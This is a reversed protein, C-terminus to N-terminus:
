CSTGLTAVGAGLQARVLPALLSLSSLGGTSSPHSVKLRYWPSELVPEPAGASLDEVM